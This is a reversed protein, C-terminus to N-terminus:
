GSPAQPISFSMVTGKGVESEVWITGGNREVMEKVIILGLGSGQEGDTGVTTYHADLRFMKEMNVPSIGVGTDKVAITVLGVSEKSSGVSATVTVKGRRATFKVANGTLNRLVTELMYRDAQVQLNEAISNKLLIAKQAASAQQLQLIEEVLERLTIPEPNYKMGGERQLRSWTLLDDLLSYATRAGKYIDQAM